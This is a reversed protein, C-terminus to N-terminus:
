VSCLLKCKRFPVILVRRGAVGQEECFIVVIYIAVMVRRRKEGGFVDEWVWWACLELRILSQISLFLNFIFHRGFAYILRSFRKALLNLFTL